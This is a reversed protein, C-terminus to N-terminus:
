VTWEDEPWRKTPRSVRLTRRVVPRERPANPDWGDTSGSAECSRGDEMPVSVGTESQHLSTDAVDNSIDYVTGIGHPSCLEGEPSVDM